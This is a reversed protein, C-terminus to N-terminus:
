AIARQATPQSTGLEKTLEEIRRAIAQRMSNDAKAEIRRLRSIEAQLAARDRIMPKREM